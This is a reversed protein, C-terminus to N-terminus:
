FIRVGIEITDGPQVASAASARYRRGFRTVVVDNRDARYSYGRAVAVANLVTMGPTYPYTGPTMVEGLVFVPRYELVRVTVDPDKVYTEAFRVALISALGPATSGAAPVSSVLPLALDGREDLRYEGSLAPVEFVDVKVLDGPLLKYSAQDPTSQPLGPLPQKGFACGAISVLLLLSWLRGGRLMFRM